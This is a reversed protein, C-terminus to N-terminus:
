DFDSVQEEETAQKRQDESSSGVTKIHRLFVYLTISEGVIGQASNKTTLM